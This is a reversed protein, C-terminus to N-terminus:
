LWPSRSYNVRHVYGVIRIRFALQQRLHRHSPALNVNRLVGFSHM